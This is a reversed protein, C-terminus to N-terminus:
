LKSILFGIVIYCATTSGGAVTELERESLEAQIDVVDPLVVTADFENAVFRIDVGEPVTQGEEAMAARPDTLLKQRFEPDTTSRALIRSMDAQATQYEPSQAYQTLSQKSYM